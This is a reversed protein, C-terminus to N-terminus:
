NCGYKCTKMKGGSKMMKMGSMAKGNKAKPAMSAAKGGYQMKKKLATGTKAKGASKKAGAIRDAQTPNPNDDIGAKVSLMGFAGGDKMKKKPAAKAKAENQGEWRGMKQIAGEGPFEKEGKLGRGYGFRYSASDEKSAGYGDRPYNGEATRKAAVGMRLNKYTPGSVKKGDQAKKVTKKVTAM